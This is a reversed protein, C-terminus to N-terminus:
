LSNSGTEKVLGTRLSQKDNHLDTLRLVIYGPHVIEYSEFNAPLLGNRTNINKRIIRGYSLSLLNSNKLGNNKEKNDVFLTSLLGINWHEPVKGLWKVGSEKYEPYPKYRSV